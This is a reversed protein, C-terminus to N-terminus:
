AVEQLPKSFLRYLLQQFDLCFETFEDLEDQVQGFLENRKQKVLKIAKKSAIHKNKRLHKLTVVHDNLDGLLHQFDDLRRLVTPLEPFEPQMKELLQLNYMLSKMAKRLRHAESTKPNLMIGEGIRRVLDIQEWFYHHMNSWLDVRGALRNLHKNTKAAAAEVLELSFHKNTKFAAKIRSKKTADLRYNNKQPALMLQKEVEGILSAKMQANRISGTQHMFAKAPKRLKKSPFKKDLVALLDYFAMLQKTNVRMPHLQKGTKQVIAAAFLQQFTTSLSEHYAILEKWIMAPLTKLFWHSSTM